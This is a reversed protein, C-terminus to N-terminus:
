PAAAHSEHSGGFIMYAGTGLAIALVLGGAAMAILKLSFRSKPAAKEAGEEGGEVDEDPEKVPAKAKAAMHSGLDRINLSAAGVVCLVLSRARGRGKPFRVIAITLAGNLGAIKAPRRRGM